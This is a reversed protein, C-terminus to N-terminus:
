SKIWKQARRPKPRAPSKGKKLRKLQKVHVAFKDREHWMLKIINRMQMSIDATDPDIEEESKREVPGYALAIEDYLQNMQRRFADIEDVVAFKQHDTSSEEIKKNAKYLLKWWHFCVNWILGTQGKHYQHLTELLSKM